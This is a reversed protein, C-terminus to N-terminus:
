ISFSIRISPTYLARFAVSLLIITLSTRATVDGTM